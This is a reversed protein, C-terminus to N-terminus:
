EEIEMTLANKQMYFFAAGDVTVADHSPDYDSLAITHTVGTVTEFTWVTHPAACVYGEPLADAVSVRMMDEYRQRFVPWSIEEGDRTVTNVAEGEETETRTVRWVTEGAETRWTLSALNSLSTLVPQRALTDAPAADLSLLHFRNMLCVEDKVRVYDQAENEAAGVQVTVTEEPWDVTHSGDESLTTGAAMHVTLVARPRDLGCAALREPTAPGIYGSLYLNAANSKLNRIVEGDAPYRFPETLMWRDIADPDTVSGELAWERVGSEDELTIRDIRAAHIALQELDILQRFGIGFDEATSVDLALLRPDGEATMYYFSEAGSFDGGIRLTLGTGDTYAIEVTLDAPDLGFASAPEGLAAFDEALVDTYQVTAADWLLFDALSARMPFTENGDSVTLGGQGDATATWGSGDARTVRLSAVEETGHEALLGRTDAHAEAAPSATSAAPEKGPTLALWLIVAAALVSLGLLAPRLWPRSKRKKREVEQM